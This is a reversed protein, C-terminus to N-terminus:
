KAGNAFEKLPDYQSNSNTRNDYKGELVKTMNNKNILFEFDAKWDTKLGKCFDSAEAKQFGDRIEDMSFAKVLANIHKKRKENMSRVDPLSPCCERYLDLIKQAIDPAGVDASSEEVSSEEVSSEEIYVTQICDTYMDTQVTNTRDKETYAGKEDLRLSSLEEVYTTPKVRDNQLYNNMRWHKIVIVGSDFALVFRKQLLVLMDDRSAGCLRMVSKPNGVFGEDDAVMGLTFYLCRASMPMDTFADSTVISKAFM